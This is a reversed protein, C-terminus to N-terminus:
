LAAFRLTPPDIGAGSVTLVLESEGPRTIELSSGPSYFEQLDEHIRRSSGACEAGVDRVDIADVTLEDADAARAPEGDALFTVDAQFQACGTSGAASSEGFVVNVTGAVTQPLASPEGAAVYYDTAAWLPGVVPVQEGAALAQAAADDDVRPGSCGSVVVLAALSVATIGRRTM